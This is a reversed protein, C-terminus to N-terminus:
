IKNSNNCSCSCYSSMRSITDQRHHHRHVSYVNPITRRHKSHYASSDFTYNKYWQPFISTFGIKRGDFIKNRSIKILNKKYFPKINTVM